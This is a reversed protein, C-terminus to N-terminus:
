IGASVSPVDSSKVAPKAGQGPKNRLGAIGLAQYRRVWRNVKQETISLKEAVAKSSISRSKLLIIQCRTQMFPRPDFRLASELEVRQKKTLPVKTIKM